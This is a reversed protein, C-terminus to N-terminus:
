LVQARMAKLTKENEIDTSAHRPPTCWQKFSSQLEAVSYPLDDGTTFSNDGVWRPHARSRHPLGIYLPCPDMLGLLSLSHPQAFVPQILDTTSPRRHVQPKSLAGAPSPPLPAPSM